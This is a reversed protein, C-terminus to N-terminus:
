SVVPDYAALMPQLSALTAEFTGARLSERLVAILQGYFFLNHITALRGYLPDNQRHLHRLYARTTSTCCPCGCAADM